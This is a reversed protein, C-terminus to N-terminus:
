GRWEELLLKSKLLQLLMRFMGCMRLFYGGYVESVVLPASFAHSFDVAATDGLQMACQMNLNMFFSM